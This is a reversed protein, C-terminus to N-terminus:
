EPDTSRSNEHRRRCDRSLHLAPRLQGAIRAQQAAQVPQGCEVLCGSVIKESSPFDTVLVRVALLAAGGCSSATRAQEQHPLARRERLPPLAALNQQAACRSRYQAAQRSHHSRCNGKADQCNSSRFTSGDAHVSRTCAFDSSGTGSAPIGLLAAGSATARNTTSRGFFRILARTKRCKSSRKPSCSSKTATM